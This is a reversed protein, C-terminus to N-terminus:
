LNVTEFTLPELFQTVAPEAEVRYGVVVGKRARGVAMALLRRQQELMADEDEGGVKVTDADYGLLLVHDFELGKASHMTCLAAREDGEPWEAERSLSVWPIGSDDLQSRLERFWGGGLPHLFAVIEDADVCDELYALAWEVQKSYKSRVVTPLSGEGECSTFDPIAGGGEVPELGDVLPRAFAAIQKTNRYNERLRRSRDGSMDIGVDNWNFFNPYIRQVTDRIFTCVFDDAIHNTIARVQNASFDQAEDVIVVEYM